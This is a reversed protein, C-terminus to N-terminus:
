ANMVDAQQALFANGLNTTWRVDRSLLAIVDPFAVLLQVSPDWNQRKAAEILSQGQLNRNQQFWQQAEIIELPYTCAALVQSLLPDPYLAIPAVLNDLQDPGLLQPPVAKSGGKPSFQTFSQAWALSNAYPPLLACAIAVTTRIASHSMFRAM